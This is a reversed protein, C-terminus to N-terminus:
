IGKLLPVAFIVNDEGYDFGITPAIACRGAIRSVPMYCAPSEADFVTACVVISPHFCDRRPHDM